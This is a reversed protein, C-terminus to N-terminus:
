RFQSCFSCNFTVLIVVQVRDPVFVQFTRSVSRSGGISYGQCLYLQLVNLLMCVLISFTLLVNSYIITTKSYPTKRIVRYITLKMHVNNIEVAQSMVPSSFFNMHLFHLTTVKETCRKDTMQKRQATVERTPPAILNHVCSNVANINEGKTAKNQVYNELKDTVTLLNMNTQLVLSM